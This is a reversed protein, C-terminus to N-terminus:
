FSIQENSPKWGYSVARERLWKIIKNINDSSIGFGRYGNREDYGELNISRERPNYFDLFNLIIQSKKELGKLMLTEKGLYETIEFRYETRKELETKLEDLTM